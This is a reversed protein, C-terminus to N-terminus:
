LLYILQNWSSLAIERYENTRGISFFVIQWKSSCTWLQKYFLSFSFVSFPVSPLRRSFVSPRYKIRVQCYTRSNWYFCTSQAASFLIVFNSKEITPNTLHSGHRRATLHTYVSWRHANLPRRVLTSDHFGRSNQRSICLIYIYINM